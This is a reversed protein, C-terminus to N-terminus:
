PLSLYNSNPIAKTQSIENSLSTEKAPTVKPTQIPEKTPFTKNAFIPKKTNPLAKTPVLDNIMKTIQDNYTGSSVKIRYLPVNITKFVQNKFEDTKKAKESNHSKDDLEIAALIHLQNDCIIFDVHRSKIYGRYKSLQQKDTVELFDEMRVKPCIILNANDCLLKLSNYFSYETKTLLTKKKYPYVELTKDNTHNNNAKKKMTFYIAFIAIILIIDIVNM